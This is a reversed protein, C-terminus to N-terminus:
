SLQLTKVKEWTFPNDRSKLYPTGGPLPTLEVTSVEVNTTDRGMPFAAKLIAFGKWGLGNAANDYHVTHGTSVQVNLCNSFKRWSTPGDAFDFRYVSPSPLLTVGAQSNVIDVMVTSEVTTIWENWEVALAYGAAKKADGVLMVANYGTSGYLANFNMAKKANYLEFLLDDRVQVDTKDGSGDGRQRCVTITNTKSDYAAAGQGPDLVLMLARPSTVVNHVRTKFTASANYMDDYCRMLYPDSKPDIKPAM